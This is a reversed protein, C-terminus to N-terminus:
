PLRLRRTEAESDLEKGREKLCRPLFDFIEVTQRWLGM